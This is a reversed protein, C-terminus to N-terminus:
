AEAAKLSRSQKADNSSYNVLKKLFEREKTVEEKHNCRIVLEANLATNKKM